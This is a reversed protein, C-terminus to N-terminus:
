SIGFNYTRQSMPTWPWSSGNHDKMMSSMTAPTARLSGRKTHVLMALLRDGLNSGSVTALLCENKQM